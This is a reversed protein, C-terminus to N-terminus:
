SLDEWTEQLPKVGKMRNVFGNGFAWYKSNDRLSARQTENKVM